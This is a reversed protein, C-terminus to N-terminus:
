VDGVILSARLLHFVGSDKGIIWRERGRGMGSSVKTWAPGRADDAIMQIEDIVAVDYRDKGDTSVMEITCSAHTAFPVKKVEQGTMLNCYVGHSNLKSVCVCMNYVCVYMILEYM